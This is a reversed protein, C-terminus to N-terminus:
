VPRVPSDSPRRRTALAALMAATIALPTVLGPTVLVAALMAAVIAGVVIVVTFTAVAAAYRGARDVVRRADAVGSRDASPQEPPFWPRLEGGRRVVPFREGVLLEVGGPGYGASELLRVLPYSESWAHPLEFTLETREATTLVEVPVHLRGNSEYPEDVVEATAHGSEDTHDYARVLQETVADDTVPM